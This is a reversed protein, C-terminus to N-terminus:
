TIAPTYIVLISDVSDGFDNYSYVFINDIHNGREILSELKLAIARVNSEVIIEIKQM